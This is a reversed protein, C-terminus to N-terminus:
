LDILGSFEGIYEWKVEDNCEIYLGQPNWKELDNNSYNIPFYDCSPILEEILWVCKEGKEVQVTHLECAKMTVTEGAGYRKNSIQTLGQYGLYEFGGKGNLIHSNWLFKKFVDGNDDLEYLPNFLEGYLITIKIDVHHPHIAVEIPKWLEHNYDAYFVRRYLGNSLSIPFSHVGVCHCNLLNKM